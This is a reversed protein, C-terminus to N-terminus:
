PIDMATRLVTELVTVAEAFNEPAISWGVRLWEEMEFGFMCGPVALLGHEKGITDIMELTNVGPVRFAGFVGTPPPTWEIGLRELAKQLVPINQKRYEKILQIPEDLRSRIHEVIRITPSSMMGEMNHFVNAVNAIIEDSAVIWGYRLVGLGHVKTLSSLTICHDGETFMPRWEKDAAAYVEDSIIRVDMEKSKNILWDRDEETFSWGVPNLQPTFILLDVRSLTNEWEARDILWASSTPRRHVAITELGLIRAAQVVPGYSPMEVAVKGGRSAAAIALTIGQTAGLCLHINKVPVNYMESVLDREDIGPGRHDKWVDPIGDIEWPFQLGSFSLNHPRHEKLRPIYWKLYAVPPITSGRVPGGAEPYHGAMLSM